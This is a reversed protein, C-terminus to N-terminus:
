GPCVSAFKVARTDPITRINPTRVLVVPVVGPHEGSPTTPIRRELGDPDAPFIGSRGLLTSHDELHLAADVGGWLLPGGHGPCIYGGEEGTGM